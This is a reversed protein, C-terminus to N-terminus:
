KEDYKDGDGDDDLDDIDGFEFDVENNDEYFDEMEDDEKPDAM